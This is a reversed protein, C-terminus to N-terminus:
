PGARMRRSTKIVAICCTPHFFLVDGPQMEVYVLPLVKLIEQVREMDAGAQQGTLTHDIRGLEHSRAIVQLCGNEKTARDM